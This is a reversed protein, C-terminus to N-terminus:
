VEEAVQGNKIVAITDSNQLSSTLWWCSKQIRRYPEPLQERKSQKQSGSLQVRREGCYTGYGESLRSCWVLNGVIYADDDSAQPKHLTHLTKDSLEQLCAKPEQSVLRSEIIAVITSKGSGSPWVLAVAKGTEIKLDLGKLIMSDPRTPYEFFVDKFEKKSSSKQSSETWSRTCLM